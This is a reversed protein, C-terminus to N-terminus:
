RGIRVRECDDDIRDRRDARVLDRGPGCSVHDRGLGRVDIVDPGKGAIIRDKGAGGIIKDRGSGGFVIDKGPGGRLTDNGSGGKILDAGIGGSIRDPGADGFLEDNGQNGALVDAGTGGHLEDNGAGGKLTDNGAEGFGQDHGGGGHIVDGGFGGRLTDRGQNGHLEDPGADGLLADDGQGGFLCDAGGLGRVTDDGRGAKIRDGGRTGVIEDDGATGFLQTECALTPDRPDRTATLVVNDYDITAGPVVDAGFQFRSTVRLHYAHGIELQAPNVAATPIASWGSAGALSTPGAVTVATNGASQDVLEVTFDAENGTAALFSDVEARRDLGLEIRDPQQGRAGRYTFAPSRWIGRVEGGVGLLGGLETRLHGDGAGGTGGSAVFGNSVAPCLLPIACPGGASDSGVWGGASGGFSRSAQDPHYVSTQAAAHTPLAAFVFAAILIPLLRRLV